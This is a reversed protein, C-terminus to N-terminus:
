GNHPWAHKLLGYSALRLWLFCWPLFLSFATCVIHPEEAASHVVNLCYFGATVSGQMDGYCCRSHCCM